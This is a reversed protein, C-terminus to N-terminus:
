HFLSAYKEKTVVKRTYLLSIFSFIFFLMLVLISNRMSGTLEENRAFLILGITLAIKETVDYFSFYSTSDNTQPLLKAYTSRSMSQIGGMVLGVCIALFYFE